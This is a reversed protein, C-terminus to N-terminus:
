VGSVVNNRLGLGLRWHGGKVAIHHLILLLYKQTDDGYPSTRYKLREVISITIFKHNL